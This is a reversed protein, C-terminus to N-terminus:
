LRAELGVSRLLTRALNQSGINRSIAVGRNGDESQWVGDRVLTFGAEKLAEIARNYVARDSM